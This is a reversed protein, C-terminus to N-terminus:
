WRETVEPLRVVTEKGRLDRDRAGLTRTPSLVLESSSKALRADLVAKSVDLM